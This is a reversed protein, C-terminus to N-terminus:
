GSCCRLSNMLGCFSIRMGRSLSRMQWCSMPLRRSRPCVSKRRPCPMLIRMAMKPFLQSTQQFTLRTKATQLQSSKASLETQIKADLVTRLKTEADILAQRYLAETKLVDAHATEVAAYESTFPGLPQQLVVGFRYSNPM